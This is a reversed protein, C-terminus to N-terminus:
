TTCSSTTVFLQPRDLDKSHAQMFICFLLTRTAISISTRRPRYDTNLYDYSGLNWSSLRSSAVFWSSLRSVLFLLSSVWSGLNSSSVLGSLSWIIPSVSIYLPTYFYLRFM